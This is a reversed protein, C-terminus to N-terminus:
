APVKTDIVDYNRVESSHALQGEAHRHSLEFLESNVWGQFAEKTVWRSLVVYEGDRDRRLLEFGAFGDAKHVHSEREIFTREFAERREEKVHVVNMVTYLPDGRPQM